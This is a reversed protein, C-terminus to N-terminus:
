KGLDEVFGMEITVGEKESETKICTRYFFYSDDIGVKECVADILPKEMNHVDIKRTKGDKTYWSRQCEWIFYLEAREGLEPRWVPVYEKLQSKWLLVEPKLEIRVPRVSVINWLKNVSPPLFPISFCIKRLSTDIM